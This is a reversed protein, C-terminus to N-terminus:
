WPESGAFTIAAIVADPWLGKAWFTSAMSILDAPAHGAHSRKAALSPGFFYGIEGDVESRVTGGEDISCVHIDIAANKETLNDLQWEHCLWAESAGTHM